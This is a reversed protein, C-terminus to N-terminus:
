PKAQYKEEIAQLGKRIEAIKGADANTAAEVAAKAEKDPEPALELIKLAESAAERARNVLREPREEARAFLRDLITAMSLPVERSIATRAGAIRAQLGTFTLKPDLFIDRDGVKGDNLEEDKTGAPLEWVQANRIQACLDNLLAASGTLDTKRALEQLFQEDAHLRKIFAERAAATGPRKGALIQQLEEVSASARDCVEALKGASRRMSQFLAQPSGLVMRAAHVRKDGENVTVDYIGTPGQRLATKWAADGVEASRMLRSEPSPLELFRETSPDWRRVVRVAVIKLVTGDPRDAKGLIPWANETPTDAVLTVQLLFAFAVGSM